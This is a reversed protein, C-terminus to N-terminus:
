HIARRKAATDTGERQLRVAIIARPAIEVLIYLLDIQEQLIAPFDGATISELDPKIYIDSPKLLALSRSVNQETLINIMQASVTLLSGVEEAKLLPTGVNVAIVVDAQCRERVEAVPLNDVLGGDVLKRREGNDAIAVIDGQVAVAKASARLNATRASEAAGKVENACDAGGRRADIDFIRVDRHGATHEGLKRLIGDRICM